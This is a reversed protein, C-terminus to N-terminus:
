GGGVRPAIIQGYQWISHSDIKCHMQVKVFNVVINRNDMHRHGQRDKWIICDSHVDQFNVWKQHAIVQHVPIIELVVSNVWEQVIEIM